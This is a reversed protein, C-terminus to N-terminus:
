KLVERAWSLYEENVDISMVGIFPIKYPHLKKLVNKLIKVKKKFTKAILVVERSRELKNEWWYISKARIINCCVILKERLLIKGIKEAERISPFTIYVICFKTMSEVM